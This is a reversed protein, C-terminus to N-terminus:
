KHQSKSMGATPLTKQRDVRNSAQSKIQLSDNIFHTRSIRNALFQLLLPVFLYTLAYLLSAVLFTITAVGFQIQLMREQSAFGLLFLGLMALAVCMVRQTYQYFFHIRKLTNSSLAARRPLFFFWIYVYLTLEIACFKLLFIMCAKVDYSWYVAPNVGSDVFFVGKCVTLVLIATYLYTSFFAILIRMWRQSILANKRSQSKSRGAVEYAKKRRHSKYWAAIGSVIFFVALIFLFIIVSVCIQLQLVYDGSPMVPIYDLLNSAGILLYQRWQKILLMIKELM